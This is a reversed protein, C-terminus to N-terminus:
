LRIIDRVTGFEFGIINGSSIYKIRPGYTCAHTHAEFAYFSRTMRDKYPPQKFLKDVYKFICINTVSYPASPFNISSVTKEDPERILLLGFSSQYSLFLPVRNIQM